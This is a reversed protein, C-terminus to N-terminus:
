RDFEYGLKILGAKADRVDQPLPLMHFAEMKLKRALLLDNSCCNSSAQHRIRSTVLAIIM